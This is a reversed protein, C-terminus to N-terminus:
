NRRPMPDTDRAKFRIYNKIYEKIRDRNADEYGLRYSNLLMDEILPLFSEAERPIHYRLINMYARTRTYIKEM